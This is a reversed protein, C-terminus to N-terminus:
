AKTARAPTRTRPITCWWTRPVQTRGAGLFVVVSVSAARAPGTCPRPAPHGLSGPHTGRPPAVCATNHISLGNPEVVWQYGDASTYWFAGPHTGNCNAVLFRFRKEEELWIPACRVQCSVDSSDPTADYAHPRIVAGKKKPTHFTATLTPDMSAVGADDVFLERAGAKVAWSGGPLPPTPVIDTPHASPAAGALVAGSMVLAAASMGPRRLLTLIPAPYWPAGAGAGVAEVRFTDGM